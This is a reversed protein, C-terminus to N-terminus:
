ISSCTHAVRVFLLTAFIFISISLKLEFSSYACTLLYANMEEVSMREDVGNKFQKVQLFQENNKREYWKYAHSAIKFLVDLIASFSHTYLNDRTRRFGLRMCIHRKDSEMEPVFNTGVYLVHLRRMCMCLYHVCVLLYANFSNNM